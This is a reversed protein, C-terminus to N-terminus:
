SLGPACGGYSRNRLARSRLRSFSGPMSRRRIKKREMMEEGEEILGEMAQMEESSRVVLSEAVQDLRM